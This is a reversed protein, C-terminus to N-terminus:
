SASSTLSTALSTLRCFAMPFMTNIHTPAMLKNEATEIEKKGNYTIPRRRRYGQPCEKFYRCHV